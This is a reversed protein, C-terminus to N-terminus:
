VRRQRQSAPLRVRIINFQVNSEDAPPGFYVRGLPKGAASAGGARGGARGGPSLKAASAFARLLMVIPRGRAGLSRHWDTLRGAICEAGILRQARARRGLLCAPQRGASQEDLKSELALKVDAAGALKDTEGSKAQSTARGDTTGPSKPAAPRIHGSPAAPWTAGSLASSGRRRRGESEAAALTPLLALRRPWIPGTLWTLWPTALEPKHAPADVSPRLRACAASARYLRTAVIQAVKDTAM